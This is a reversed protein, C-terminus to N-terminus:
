ICMIKIENCVRAHVNELWTELWIERGVRKEKAERNNERKM